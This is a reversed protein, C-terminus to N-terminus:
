FLIPELRAKLPEPLKGLVYFSVMEAFNESPDKGAYPTVFGEGSEEQQGLFKSWLAVPVVHYLNPADMDLKVHVTRRRRDHNIVKGKEGTASEFTEGLKPYERGVIEYHSLSRYLEAIEAKKSALFKHELRHALEHCVIRVTDWDSPVDARIFMEDSSPLYFAAVTKKAQIAKSVLVDGYCVKGLGHATMAKEAKSVVEAAQKMKDDDFGGTNVVDFSGIRIKTKVAVTPDSHLQGKAIAAEANMVHKHLEGIIKLYAELYEKAADYSGAMSKPKFRNIRNKSYFKNAAEVSKQLNRPLVYQQLIAWFLKRAHIAIRPYWWSGSLLLEIDFRARSSATLEDSLRRSQEYDKANHAEIFAQIKPSDRKAADEWKAISQVAAAFLTLQEKPDAIADGLFRRAIRDALPLM